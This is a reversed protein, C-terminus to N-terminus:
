CCHGHSLISIKSIELGHIQSLPPLCYGSIPKIKINLHPVVLSEKEEQPLFMSPLAFMSLPCSEARPWLPMRVRESALEKLFVPDVMEIQTWRTETLKSVPSQQRKTASHWPLQEKFLFNELLGQYQGCESHSLVSPCYCCHLAQKKKLKLYLWISEGM